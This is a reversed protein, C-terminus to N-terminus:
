GVTCYLVSDWWNMRHHGFFVKYEPVWEKLMLPVEWLHSTRHYVSIQLKPKYRVIIDKAGKLAEVEAGEIDMKILTPIEERGGFFSDLSVVDVFYGDGDDVVHGNVGKGRFKLRKSASWLGARVTVCNELHKTNDVLERYNEEEPEFAFIVVDKGVEGVVGLVTDGNYAGGDVVIDGGVPRVLPHFYQRYRSVAIKSADGDVAYVLVKVFTDRSEDDSLMQWVEFLLDRKELLLRGDISFELLGLVGSVYRIGKGKLVQVMEKEYVSGIVVVEDRQLSNPDKVELGSVRSGWKLPDSDVFYKVSVGYDRLASLVRKGGSSAGWIVVPIERDKVADLSKKVSSKNKFHWTSEDVLEGVYRYFARVDM